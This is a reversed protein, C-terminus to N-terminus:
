YAFSGLNGLVRLNGLRVPLPDVREISLQLTLSTLRGSWAPHTRLAAWVDRSKGDAAWDLDQSGQVGDSRVFTVRGHLVRGGGQSSLQAGFFSVDDTDVDVRFRVVTNADADWFHPRDAPVAEPGSVTEPTMVIDVTSPRPTSVKRYAPAVFGFLLALHAAILAGVALRTGRADQEPTSDWWSQLGVATMIMLPAIGPLLYRGQPQDFQLNIRIVVAIMGLVGALSVLVAAPIGRDRQVRRALGVAGLALLAAYALSVALPPKLSLWGFFAIFSHALRSPFIWLFYRSFLSKTAILGAVATHMAGSAFPDGYLQVNRLSWPLVLIAALGFAGVAHVIRTRRTDPALAFAVLLAPALGIANIKSLYAAALLAGALATRVPHCGRRATALSLWVVGAGTMGVFGDSSLTAARFAFQPWTGVLAAALLATTRRRTAEFGALYAFPVALACWVATLLRASRVPWYRALDGRADQFFRPLFPAQLQDIGNFYHAIPPLATRRAAPAILLYYLPPQNAEIAAPSYVPLAHLEHLLRAYQWHQPEDPAELVPVIFSWVAYLGAAGITLLM